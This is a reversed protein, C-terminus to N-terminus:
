IKRGEDFFESKSKGKNKSKYSRTSDKPTEQRVNEKKAEAIEEDWTEKIEEITEKIKDNDQLLLLSDAFAVPLSKDQLDSKINTLLERNNLEREREEIADLREQLKAEEKEKETMKAYNEADARAKERVKELEKEHKKRERALRAEVADDIQEQLEEQTFESSENGGDDDGNPDDQNDVPDTEGNPDDESAFYQLNMKLLDKEEM